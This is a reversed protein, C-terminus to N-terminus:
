LEVSKGYRSLAERARRGGLFPHEKASTGSLPNIDSDFLLLCGAYNKKNAYHELAESLKEVREVLVPIIRHYDEEFVEAIHSGSGDSDTIRKKLDEITM